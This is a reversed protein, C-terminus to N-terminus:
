YDLTLIFPSYKNAVMLEPAFGIRTSITGTVEIEVAGDVTNSAIGGVNKTVVSTDDSLLSTYGGTQNWFSYTATVAVTPVGSIPILPAATHDSVVVASQENPYIGVVSTTDLAVNVAQRLTLVTTNSNGATAATNGMIKYAGQGAGTGDTVILWYAGFANTTATTGLPVSVQKSGAAVATTLTRTVYNATLAVSQTLKGAALNVAGASAYSFTRGDPTTATQGHGEGTSTASIQYIDQGMIQIPAALSM